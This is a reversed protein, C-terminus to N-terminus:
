SGGPTCKTMINIMRFMLRMAKVNYRFQNLSGILYADMEPHYFLFTGTTGANGWVNFKKPMLLPVTKVNIIGYGYDMGFIFKAWDKMRDLTRGSVIRHNVLAKMFALLDEGTSVIGGGAFSFSLSRYDTLDLDRSYLRAIPLESKAIPESRQLMYTHKMGLPEFLYHRLAEHFPKGTVREAILGLLNYGTDSYHFAKGPPFHSRLNDKSWHLVEEPTWFRSPEAFVRDLMSAGQKPKDEVFDCLGSTHNLLHRIQIDDAYDKGKYVHLGQLIDRELYLSVPDDYDLLGEELLRGILVSTVLKGISAIFYPQQPHAPLDGSAGEALNVSLGLKDSHILLYANRILPDRQVRERFLREISDKTKEANM